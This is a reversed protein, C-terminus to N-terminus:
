PLKHAIAEGTRTVYRLDTILSQARDHDQAQFAHSLKQALM